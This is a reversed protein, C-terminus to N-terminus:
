RLCFGPSIGYYNWVPGARWNGDTQTYYCSIKNLRYISRLWCSVATGRESYVINKAYNQTDIGLKSQRSYASGENPRIDNGDSGCRWERGSFLWLKDYTTVSNNKTSSSVTDSKVAKPVIAAQLASPFCSILAEQETLATRNSGDAYFMANNKGAEDDTSPANTKTKMNDTITGTLMNRIVSDQWGGANTGYTYQSDSSDFYSSKQHNWQLYTFAISYRLMGTGDGDLSPSTQAQSPKLKDTLTLPVAKTCSEGSGGGDLCQEYVYPDKKSWEAITKWSDAHICRHANGTSTVGTPTHSKYTNIYSKGTAPGFTLGATGIVGNEDQYTDEKIGYVSVAYKVDIQPGPM